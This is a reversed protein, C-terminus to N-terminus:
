RRRKRGEKLIKTLNYRISKTISLAIADGVEVFGHLLSDTIPPLGMGDIIRNLMPALRPPNPLYEWFPRARRRRVRGM